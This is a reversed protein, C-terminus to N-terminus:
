KRHRNKRGGEREGRNAQREGKSETPQGIVKGVIVRKTKEGLGERGRKRTETGEGSNAWVEESEGEKTGM